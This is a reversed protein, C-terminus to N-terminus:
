RARFKRRAQWAFAKDSTMQEFLGILANLKAIPEFALTENALTGVKGCSWSM